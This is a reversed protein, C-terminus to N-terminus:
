KDEEGGILDTVGINSDKCTHLGITKPTVGGWDKPIESGTVVLIVAMDVDPTHTNRVLEGCRRCKYVLFGDKSM